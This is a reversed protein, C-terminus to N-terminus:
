KFISQVEAWAEQSDPMYLKIAALFFAEKPTKPKVTARSDASVEIDGLVMECYFYGKQDVERVVVGQKKLWKRLYIEDNVLTSYARKEKSFFVYKNILSDITM